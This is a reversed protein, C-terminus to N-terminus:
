ERPPEFFRPLFAALVQRPQTAHAPAQALLTARDQVAPGQPWDAGAPGCFEPLMPPTVEPHFQWALVRGPLFFGQEACAQSAGLRITGAPLSFTDGHWHLLTASEPLGPFLARAEATFRVPWWGIEHHPNQAVRAGLRDALLQAGLCIGLCRVGRDLAADLWAKERLLWPYDRHQYINMAGGLIVAGYFEEAGPPAAPDEWWRITECAFGHQALWDAVAGPGESSAHQLIAVRRSM